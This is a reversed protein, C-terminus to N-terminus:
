DIDHWACQSVDNSAPKPSLTLLQQDYKFYASVQGQKHSLMNLNIMAMAMLLDKGGQIAKM